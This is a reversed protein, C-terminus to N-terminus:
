GTVNNGLNLVEAAPAAGTACRNPAAQLRPHSGPTGCRAGQTSGAEGETRTEAGRETHRHIFLYFRLFFLIFYFKLQGTDSLLFSMCRLKANQARELRNGWATGGTAEISQWEGQGLVTWAMGYAWANAWAIGEIVQYGWLWLWSKRFDKNIWYQFRWDGLFM